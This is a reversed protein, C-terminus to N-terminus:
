TENIKVMKMDEENHPIRYSGTVKRITPGSIKLVRSGSVTIYGM